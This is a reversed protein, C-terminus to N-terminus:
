TLELYNADSEVPKLAWDWWVASVEPVLWLDQTGLSDVNRDLKAVFKPTEMLRSKSETIKLYPACFEPFVSSM